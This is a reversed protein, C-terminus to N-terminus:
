IGSSRNPLRTPSYEVLTPSLHTLTAEGADHFTYPPAPIDSMQRALYPSEENVKAASRVMAGRPPPPLIFPVITANTFTSPSNLDIDQSSPTPGLPEGAQWPSSRSGPGKSTVEREKSGPAAQLIFPEVEYNQGTTLSTANSTITHSTSVNAGFASSNYTISGGLTNGGGTHETLSPSPTGSFPGIPVNLNKLRGSTEFVPSPPSQVEPLLRHSSRVSENTLPPSLPTTKGDGVSQPFPRHVFQAIEDGADADNDTYLRGKEGINSSPSAPVVTVHRARSRRGLWYATGILIAVFVVGGITGGVIAGITKSATASQSRNAMGISNPVGSGPNGVVFILYFASIFSSGLLFNNVSSDPWAKITGLCTGDSQPEILQSEDVSFLQGSFTLAMSLKTDCPITWAQAGAVPSSTKIASPIATYFLNAQSSPFYTDSFYPEVIAQAKNSNSVVTESVSVAWGDMEITWDSEPMTFGSNADAGSVDDSGAPANAVTSSVNVTNWSITGEYANSDPVIWHLVGGNGEDDNSTFLPPDLAMGFTFNNQSPNRSLWGGFVTDLFDGAAGNANTGLGILGSTVGSFLSSSANAVIVLLWLYFDMLVKLGDLNHIEGTQNPYQWTSGNIEQLGCNEKILPGGLSASGVTINESGPWPQASTSASANYTPVSDCGNCATGAVVTYGTNAALAFKFRQTDPSSSMNVSAVYQKDENVTLPINVTVLPADRKFSHMAAGNVGTTFLLAHVLLGRPRSAALAALSNVM